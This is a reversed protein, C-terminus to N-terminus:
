DAMQAMILYNRFKERVVHAEHNTSAICKSSDLLSQRLPANFTLEKIADALLRIEQKDVVYGWGSSRAYNVVGVEPPGYVLVPRRSMMYIHSKTSISLAIYSRYENHFSEPLFLIDAGKLVGPVEDNRLAPLIKLNNLSSLLKSAEQPVFPVFATISIHMGNESLLSAAESLELLSLWRNLDISGSYVISIIDPPSVRKPSASDFRAQEDCIMLPEFINHYRELYEIKMKNSTGLRIACIHSLKRFNRDVVPRILFSFPSKNYLHNPWDDAVQLCIPINFEEHLKIVIRMFTIDTPQAYIVDPKINKIWTRLQNSLKYSFLLEWVGTNTLYQSIYHSVKRVYGVFNSTDNKKSIKTVQRSYTGLSSKKLFSFINGFRRDNGNLKYNSECFLYDTAVSGSFIQSINSKPWDHFWNRLSAGVSDYQNIQTKIVILVKPYSKM